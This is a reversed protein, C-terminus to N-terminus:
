RYIQGGKIWNLTLSTLTKNEVFILPSRAPSFAFSHFVFIRIRTWIGIWQCVEDCLISIRMAARGGLGFLFRQKM